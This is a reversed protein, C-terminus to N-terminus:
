QPAPTSRMRRGRRAAAPRRTRMAPDRKRYLLRDLGALAQAAQVLVLDAAPVGPVAWSRWASPPARAWRTYM